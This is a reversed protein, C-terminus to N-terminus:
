EVRIGFAFSQIIEGRSNKVQLIYSDQPLYIAPISATLRRTGETLAPTRQGISIREVRNQDLLAVTYPDEPTSEELVLTFEVVAADRRIRFLQEGSASRSRGASLDAGNLVIHEVVEASSVPAVAPSGTATRSADLQARLMRNDRYMVTASAVALLLGFSLGFELLHRRILPRAPTERRQSAPDPGHLAESLAGTFEVHHWSHPNRRFNKEFQKREAEPMRNHVYKQILDEKVSQMRDFFADDSFYREEFNQREKGTLDGLLYAVILRDDESQL